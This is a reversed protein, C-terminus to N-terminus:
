GDLMPLPHVYATAGRIELVEVAQGPEITLTDDYPHASWVEGALSIRGAQMGTVTELVLGQRGVLKGHGIRLEPGSHLRRAVSPRVLALAAVAAASALIAQLVFPAGLLAAVMGVLAGAALMALILDLSFMEAVGLLISAALWSEWMHERLWDWSDM